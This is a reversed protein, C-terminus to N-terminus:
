FCTRYVPSALLIRETVASQYPEVTFNDARCRGDYEM